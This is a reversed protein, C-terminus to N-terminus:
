VSVKSPVASKVALPSTFLSVTLLTVKVLLPVPANAVTRDSMRTGTVIAVDLTQTGRALRYDRTAGGGSVIVTDRVPVYGIFSVRVIHTGASVPLRYTGDARVIAGQIGSGVAVRAGALPQGSEADVVKGAISQAAAVSGCIMMGFLAVLALSSPRMQM